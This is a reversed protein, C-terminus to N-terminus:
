EQPNVTRVIPIGNQGVPIYIQTHNPSGAMKEQAQIALYQLYQDTLSKDIINQSISIGKAEEIRVVAKQKTIGVEQETARAIQENVAIQNRADQRKQYRSYAKGGFMLLAIFGLVLLVSAITVNVYNAERQEDGDVDKTITYFLSM